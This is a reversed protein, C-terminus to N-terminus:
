EGGCRPLQSLPDAASAPTWSEGLMAMLRHGRLAAGAEVGRVGCGAGFGPALVSLPLSCSIVRM